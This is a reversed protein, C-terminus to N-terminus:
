AAPISEEGFLAFALWGNGGPAIEVICRTLVVAAIIPSRLTLLYRFDDDTTPTLWLLLRKLCQRTLRIELERGIGRVDRRRNTAKSSKAARMWWRRSRM